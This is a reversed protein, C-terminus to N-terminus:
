QSFFKGLEAKISACDTFANRCAPLVSLIRKGYAKTLLRPDLCIVAGRDDKTRMLRGFGQKFKMAAKPVTLDYFPNGGQKEIAEHQAEVVPDNPVQFPLKVIVVCRLAEGAIDVGEWFSDTGFLVGKSATRFRQLLLTREEEGQRFLAFGKRELKPQLERYFQQLMEYSTFLVFAGGGVITLMEFLLASAEKTFLPSSPDPLDRPIAFLVRSTFDFPSPYVGETVTRESLTSLGLRSRIMTFDKGSCLTASCLVASELPSFLKESLHGAVDLDACVITPQQENEKEYWRVEDAEKADPHFFRHLALQKEEMREAVLLIDASLVNMQKEERLSPLDAVLGRLIAVVKKLNDILDDFPAIDLSQLDKKQLRWRRALLQTQSNELITFASAIKANTDTKLQPFETDLRYLLSSNGENHTALLRRVKQLSGQQGERESLLHAFLGMLERKSLRVAMIDLAIEELHHAEDIVLHSYEPLLSREEGRKKDLCDLLLLHHNVILIQADEAKKRAKFFFCKKYHPCQIHTCSDREAAVSEWTGGPLSFPLSARTGDSSNDAWLRLQGTAKDDEAFLSQQEEKEELRKWCLYNSMGKVVVAEVELDLASLLLPLDKEILQHQLAITHTSIVTRQQSRAAWLMAGALYALSKGTGTGGEVLAIQSASYADFIQQAMARQAPREEYSAYCRALIGGEAFVMDILDKGFESDM